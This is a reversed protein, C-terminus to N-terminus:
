IRTGTNRLVLGNFADARGQQVEMGFDNGVLAIDLLGDLDVDIAQIGYVPALQAEAPLAHFDFHGHGDNELWSSKMWNTMLILASDMEGNAFMEPVTAEGFEAYTNFRKRIGVFQKIVDQRPHYLYEHRDGLSDRWYCSILPDISGNQDLDQGYVRLPEGSNCQFYLNEGYNGALYDMDGDNDLDAASLSTWWGHHESM